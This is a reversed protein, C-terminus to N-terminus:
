EEQAKDNYIRSKCCQQVLELMLSGGKLTNKINGHGDSEVCLGIVVFIYVMKGTELITLTEM